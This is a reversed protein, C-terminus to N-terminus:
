NRPPSVSDREMLTTCILTQTVPLNPNRVRELLRRIAMRGVGVPNAKVTTLAPTILRASEADDFGVVSIDNPVQLNHSRLGQIFGIATDDTSCFYATCDLKQEVVRHAVKVGSEINMEGPLVYDPNFPIGADELARRYGEFRDLIPFHALGNIFGIRRHGKAIIYSVARFSSHYNEHSIVDLPMEPFYHDVLVAPLNLELLGRVLEESIFNILLLAEAGSEQLKQRGTELAAPDDNIIRYILHLNQQRCEAEVGHLIKSFYPNYSEDMLPSIVPRCCFAVHTIEQSQATPVELAPTDGNIRAFPNFAPSSLGYNARGKELPYGLETAANLVRMRLDPQVKPHNNLVRSATGLSVLARDAVEKLTVISRRGNSAM